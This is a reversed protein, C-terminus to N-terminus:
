INVVNTVEQSHYSPFCFPVFHTICSMGENFKDGYKVLFTVSLM